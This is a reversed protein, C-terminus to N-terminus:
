PLPKNRKGQRDGKAPDQARAKKKGSSSPGEGLVWRIASGREGPLPARAEDHHPKSSPGRNQHRVGSFDVLHWDWARTPDSIRVV